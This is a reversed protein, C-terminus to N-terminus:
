KWTLNFAKVPDFVAISSEYIHIKRGKPDKPPSYQKFIDASLKEVEKDFPYFDNVVNVYNM